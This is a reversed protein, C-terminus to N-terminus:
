GRGICPSTSSALAEPWQASCILPTALLREAQTWKKKVLALRANDADIDGKDEFADAEIVFAVHELRRFLPSPVQPMRVQRGRRAKERRGDASGQMGPMEPGEQEKEFPRGERAEVKGKRAKGVRRFAARRRRLDRRGDDAFGHEQGVYFGKRGNPPTEPSPNDGFM